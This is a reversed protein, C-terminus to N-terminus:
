FDELLPGLRALLPDVEVSTAPPEPISELESSAMSAVIPQQPTGSLQTIQTELSELREVTAFSGKAELHTIRSQLEAIQRELEMFLIVSQTPERSLLFQHLAAKCLESFSGHPGQRLETAIADLLSQDGDSVGFTITKRVSKSSSTM